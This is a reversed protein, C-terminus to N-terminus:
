DMKMKPGPVSSSTGVRRSSPSTWHPYTLIQSRPQLSSAGPRPSLTSSAYPRILTQSARPPIQPPAITFAVIQPISLQLAPMTPHSYKITPRRPQLPLKSTLPLFLSTLPRNTPRSPSPHILTSPSFLWQSNNPFPMPQISAGYQAASLDTVCFSPRITSFTSDLEQQQLDCDKVIYIQWRQDIPQLMAKTTDLIEKVTAAFALWFDAKSGQLCYVASWQKVGINDSWACALWQRNMDWTYALHVSSDSALLLGAPPQSTLRFNIAKPIPKALRISSGSTFPSPDAEGDNQTPSCRSYIEFALQMYSKPPPITLSDCDVLSNLPIIQLVLDSAGGRGSKKLGSAYTAFLRLFTACLHPLFSDDNFPNVMYIVYNSGDFEGKPIETGSQM